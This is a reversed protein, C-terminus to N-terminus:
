GRIKEELEAYLDPNDLLYQKAKERGQGMSEGNPVTMYWAGKRNVLGRTVALDLIDGVKSFGEGFTLEVEAEKYPAGVKNKPIKIRIKNAVSETGEKLTEIRRVDLQLSAYFPLARGGPRTENSGYIVGIKERIQNTFIITTKTDGAAGNLKRMAQSMLRAQLGVVADGFQGEIEAKPTLAAVSDVVILAVEGSKTLRLVIELADNGNSPQSILLKDVDVGLTSAWTKDLSYEVDIFACTLGMKQPEAVCSLCLSTKGGSFPGYVEIIRGRPIGGAGIALDVSLLGTSIVEVEVDPSEGMVMISGAGFISNIEALTDSLSSPPTTKVM